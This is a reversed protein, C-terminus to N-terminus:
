PGVGGEGKDSKTHLEGVDLSSVVAQKDASDVPEMRAGGCMTASQAPRFFAFAPFIKLRVRSTARGEQSKM